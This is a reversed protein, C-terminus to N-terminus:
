QTDGSLRKSTEIITTLFRQLRVLHAIVWELGICLGAIALILATVAWRTCRAIVIM